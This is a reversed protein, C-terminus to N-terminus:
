TQRRCIRRASKCLHLRSRWSGEGLGLGARCRRWRRGICSAARGPCLGLCRGGGARGFWLWTRAATTRSSRSTSGWTGASRAVAIPRTWTSRTAAPRTSPGITPWCMPPFSASPDNELLCLSCCLRVCDMVLSDPVQIGIDAFLGNTGLSALSQEVTLGPKRPFNRYTYVPVGIEGMVEGIDILVSIGTGQNIEALMICRVPVEDGKWDFKLPNKAPDKPFRICLAPLPLRILDSDLDLDLRTLMPVISPWLNYYPRRARRGARSTSCRTTSSPPAWKSPM